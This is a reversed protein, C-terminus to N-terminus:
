FASNGPIRAEICIPGPWRTRTIGARVPPAQPHVSVQRQGHPPVMPTGEEDAGDVESPILMGHWHVLEPVDTDNIVDVSVPKGERMRLLPGPSTGNYGMTSIIHNPALEITVPAIRLTVDAATAEAAQAPASNMQMPPQMQAQTPAPADRAQAPLFSPPAGVQLLAGAGLKM